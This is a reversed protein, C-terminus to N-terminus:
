NNSHQMIFVVVYSIVVIMYPVIQSFISIVFLWEISVQVEVQFTLRLFIRLSLLKISMISTGDDLVLGLHNYNPAQRKKCNLASKTRTPFKCCQSSVTRIEHSPLM